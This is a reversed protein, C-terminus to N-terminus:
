PLLPLSGGLLALSLVILAGGCRELAVIHSPVKTAAWALAAGTTLCLLIAASVMSRERCFGVSGMTHCASQLFGTVLIPNVPLYPPRVMLGLEIAM